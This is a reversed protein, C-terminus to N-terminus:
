YRTWSEVSSATTPTEQVTIQLGVIAPSDPDNSEISLTGFYTGSTNGDFMVTVPYSPPGASLLAPLDAATPRLLAFGAGAVTMTTVILDSGGDNGVHITKSGTTVGTWLQIPNLTATTGGVDTVLNPQAAGYHVTVRSADSSLTWQASPGDIALGGADITGGNQAVVVDWSGFAAPGGNLLNVKLTGALTAAGGSMILRDNNGASDIDISLVGGANQTYPTANFVTPTSLMAAGGVELTGGDNAVAIPLIVNLVAISGGTWSWGAIAGSGTTISAASLTGGSMEFRGSGGAQNGFNLAGSLAVNAAGGIKLEGFRSYGVQLDTATVEGGSVDALASGGGGLGLRIQKISQFRGGSMVLAGPGDQGFYANNAPVVIGETLTYTSPSEAASGVRLAGTMSVYGGSQRIEGLNMLIQKDPGTAELAGGSVTLRGPAPPIYSLGLNIVGSRTATTAVSGDIILNYYPDGFPNADPNWNAATDFNNSSEADWVLDILQGGRVTITTETGDVGGTNSVIKLIATASSPASKDYLLNVDLAPNAGGAVTITTPVAPAAGGAFRFYGGANNELTIATIYLGVLGDNRVKAKGWGDAVGDTPVMLLQGGSNAFLTYQLSPQPEGTIIVQEFNSYNVTGVNAASITGTNGGARTVFNGNADFYLVDNNGPSGSGDAEASVDVGLPRAKVYFTDNDNGGTLTDAGSDSYITDKQGGANVMDKFESDYITDAGRFSNPFSFNIDTTLGSPFGNALTVGRLNITNPPNQYPGSNAGTLNTGTVIQTVNIPPVLGGTISVTTTDNELVLVNGGYAGITINDASTTASVDVTLVGASFSATVAARASLPWLVCVSGLLIPLVLGMTNRRHTM